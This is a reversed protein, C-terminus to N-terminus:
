IFPYIYAKGKPKFSTVWHDYGTNLIQIHNAASSCAEYTTHEAGPLPWRTLIDESAIPTSLGLVKPFQKKLLGLCICVIEDTLMESGQLLNM